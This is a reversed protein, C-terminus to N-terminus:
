AAAKEIFDLLLDRPDGVPPKVVGTAGAPMVQAAVASSDDTILTVEATGGTVRRSRAPWAASRARRTAGAAIVPQDVKVGDSSGKDIQISSYWVNPSRAIM